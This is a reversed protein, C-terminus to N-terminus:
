RHLAGGHRMSLLADDLALFLLPEFAFLSAALFAAIAGRLGHSLPYMPNRFETTKLLTLAQCIVFNFAM